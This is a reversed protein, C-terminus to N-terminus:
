RVLGECRELDSCGGRRADIVGAERSLYSISAGERTKGLARESRRATAGEGIVAAAAALRPL